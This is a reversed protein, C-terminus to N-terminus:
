DASDATRVEERPEYLIDNDQEPHKETHDFEGDLIEQPITKGDEWFAACKNVGLFHKCNICQNTM